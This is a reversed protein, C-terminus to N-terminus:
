AQRALRQLDGATLDGHRLLGTEADLDVHTLDLLVVAEILLLREARAVVRGRHLVEDRAPREVVLARGEHTSPPTQGPSERYRFGPSVGTSFRLSGVSRGGGGRPPNRAIPEVWGVFAYRLRVAAAFWARGNGYEYHRCVLML